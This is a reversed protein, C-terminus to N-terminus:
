NSVAPPMTGTAPAETGTAPASSAPLETTPAPADGSGMFYWGALVVVLVAVAVMIWNQQSM